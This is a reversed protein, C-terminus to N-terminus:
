DGLKQQIELLWARAVKVARTQGEELSDSRRELQQGFVHVNFAPAGAELRKTSEYGVSLLLGHGLDAVADSGYKHLKWKLPM